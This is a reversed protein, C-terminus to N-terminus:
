TGGKLTLSLTESWYLVVSLIINRCIKIKLHKSLLSSFLLNQVSHCCANGSKLRSEIDKQISNQNKVTIGLYKFEEVREFFSIDIKVNHSRGANKDGSIIMYKTKDANVELGIENSAVVLAEANKKITRVSREMKNGDDEYVQLQHTGNLKM